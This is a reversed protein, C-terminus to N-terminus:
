SDCKLVWIFLPESVSMKGSSKVSGGVVIFSGDKGVAVGDSFFELQGHDYTQEWLKNGQSDIKVILGNDNSDRGILLGSDNPLDIKKLILNKNDKLSTGAVLKTTRNSGQRNMSMVSEAVTDFNGTVNITGSKSVSLGKIVRSATTINSKIDEPADGLVINKTMNGDHDIEWLWYKGDSYVMPRFSSGTTLLKNDTADFTVAGPSCSLGDGCGFERQWLLKLPTEAQVYSQNVIWFVTLVFLAIMTQTTLPKM